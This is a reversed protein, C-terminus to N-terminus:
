EEALAEAIDGDDIAGSFHDRVRAFLSADSIDPELEEIADLIAVIEEASPKKGHKM